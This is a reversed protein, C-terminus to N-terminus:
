KMRRLAVVMSELANCCTPVLGAQMLLAGSATKEDFALSSRAGDCLNIEKVRYLAKPDLGCWKVPKPNGNRLQYVFLVARAKDESVFNMAARPGAYPSEIRYQDGFQVIPRIDRQYTAVASAVFRRDAASLRDLDLDAGLCATMAVDFAFKLPRNGMRTVHACIAMAPYFHSYEWQMAVRRLPDTNDSPWFEHAHRLSRLDVRGGGGSCVMVEVGPHNRELDAMIGELANAYDILLNSQRDPALWSSGPQAIHSNCDWKVYSIGPNKRLLDDVAHFVFERTDPRTLDLVLQNGVLPLARKPQRIVWDPHKQFLDSLPDVMEPEMWLGFRLGRKKAADCLYGIGHPLKAPSVAWDGLVLKYNNSSHKASGSWGADLLFLEFNAERAGDFLNLLKKEDFHINTAEWNNLLVARPKNGDRLAYRRVFRHLNRSLPGTGNGSWAWVMRPAILTKGVDLTYRSAFPNIGAHARVRGGDTEFGFQFPGNWALSGAWVEGADERAPGGVSLLFFPPTMLSARTGLKSDIVKLGYELQEEVPNLENAWNGWFHTLWVSGNIIPASSEFRDLVVPGDEDNKVEMWQEIVDFAPYAQFCLTVELPYAPDKLVCRTIRSGDDEKKTTKEVFVLDTSTNGDAHTVELSPEGFVYNDGAPPLCEWKRDGIDADGRVPKGGGFATQYIRGDRGVMLSFRAHDTVIDIQRDRQSAAASAAALALMALADIVRLM